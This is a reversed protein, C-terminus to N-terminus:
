NDHDSDEKKDTKDSSTKVSEKQEKTLVKEDIVALIKNNVDDGNKIFM